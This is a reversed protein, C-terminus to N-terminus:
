VPELWIFIGACYLLFPCLTKMGLWSAIQLLYWSPFPFDTSWHLTWSKDVVSQLLVWACAGCKEQRSKSKSQNKKDKQAIKRAQKSKKSLSQFSLSLSLSFFLMLNALYFFPPSSRSAASHHSFYSWIYLFDKIVVVIIVVSNLM